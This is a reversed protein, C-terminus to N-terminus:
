GSVSGFSHGDSSGPCRQLGYPRGGLPVLLEVTHGERSELTCVTSGSAANVVDWSWDAVVQGRRGLTTCPIEVMEALKVGWPSDVCVVAERAQAPAFLAAKAQLYNEMTHFDELHDHSLNTFGAVDCVVQDMRNKDLAQASIELAIATVGEERARAIM